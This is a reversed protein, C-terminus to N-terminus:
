GDIGWAPIQWYSNWTGPEFGNVRNNMVHVQNTGVTFDYAVDEQAIRQVENYIAAREEQACGPLARAEDLLADLEPNVYSTLNFGSGPIDNQSYLINYAIGDVQTGGGFGVITADFTQPLLVDSLYASWEMSQVNVTIGLQGLQDQAVLAINSWLDVLPSYVLDFEFPVGDKERVGTDPNILWGAEDLLEAARVPDYAYPSVDPDNAWAFGPTFPGNLLFGGNDGLTGVIASKDYGMAIAQRVRVDSFFVNPTQEILNGDDDYAAQPSDAAAWNMV